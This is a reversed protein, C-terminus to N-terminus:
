GTNITPQYSQPLAPFQNVSDSVNYFSWIMKSCNATSLQDNGLRSWLPCRTTGGRSISVQISSQPVDHPTPVPKAM